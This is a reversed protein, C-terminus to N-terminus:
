VLLVLSAAQVKWWIFAPSTKVTVRTSRRALGILSRCSM